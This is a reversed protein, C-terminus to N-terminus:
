EYYVCDIVTPYPRDNTYIRIQFYEDGVAPTSQVFTCYDYNYDKIWGHDNLYNETLEIKREIGRDINDQKSCGVAGAIAGITLLNMAIILIKKALM